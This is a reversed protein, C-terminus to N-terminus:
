AYYVELFSQKAKETIEELRRTEPKDEVAEVIAKIRDGVDKKNFERELKKNPKPWDRDPRDAPLRPRPRPLPPVPRDTPIRPIDVCRSGNWFEGRGCKECRHGNWHEDSDCDRDRPKCIGDDERFGPPCDIDIKKCKDGNWYRGPGCNPPYPYSPYVPPYYPYPQPVPYPYYDPYRDEIVYDPYRDEVVYNYDPFRDEIIPGIGRQPYDPYYDMPPPGGSGLGLGFDGLQERLMPWIEKVFFYGGIGLIGLTILTSTGSM